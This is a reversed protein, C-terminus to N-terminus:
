RYYLDPSLFVIGQISRYTDEYATDRRVLRGSADYYEKYTVSKKGTRAERDVVRTHYPLSEDLMVKEGPDRLVAVQESTVRVNLGDTRAPGYLEVTLTKEKEDARAAVVVERGLSNRFRFNPGGTSITADRGIDIYGIPWSHPHRETITLDALMVANFLTTSVQCVGGGYEQEYRGARIGPAEKWGNKANRAGLIGNIDFEEEPQVAVGDILRAAKVINFVRNASNYPSKAFSTSFVAILGHDERAMETTYRAPLAKFPVDIEASSKTEVAQAFRGLLAEEDVDRGDSSEIYDFVGDGSRRFVAAADQPERSFADDIRQALERASAPELRWAVSFTRPPRDIGNYRVLHAAENLVEELNTEIPMDLARYIETRDGLRLTYEAARMVDKVRESLKERAGALPMNSVDVGEIEIGDGLVFTDEPQEEPKLPSCAALLFTLICILFVCIRQKRFQLDFAEWM